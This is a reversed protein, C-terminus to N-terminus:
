AIQVSGDQPYSGRVSKPNSFLFTIWSSDLCKLGLVSQLIVELSTEFKIRLKYQREAELKM